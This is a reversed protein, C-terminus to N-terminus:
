NPYMGYEGSPYVSQQAQVARYEACGYGGKGNSTVSATELTAYTFWLVPTPSHWVTGHPDTFATGKILTTSGIYPVGGGVVLDTPPGPITYEREGFSTSPYNTNNALITSYSTKSGDLYKYVVTSVTAVM